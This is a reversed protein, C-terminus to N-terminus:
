IEQLTELNDRNKVTECWKIMSQIKCLGYYLTSIRYYYDEMNGMNDYKEKKKILNQQYDLLKKEYEDIKKYALDSPLKDFFFVKSVFLEISSENSEDDNELWKIFEEKGYETISYKKSLRKGQAENECVVYGNKLLKGLIPYISGFSAKYFMGIGGEISKRIKYGTFANSYLIGLIIFELM